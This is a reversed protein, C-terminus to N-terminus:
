SWGCHASLGPAAKRSSVQSDENRVNVCNEQPTPSAPWSLGTLAVLRVRMTGEEPRQRVLKKLDPHSDTGRTKVTTETSQGEQGERGVPEPGLTGLM